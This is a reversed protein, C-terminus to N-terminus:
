VFPLHSSLFGSTPHKPSVPNPPGEQKNLNLLMSGFSSYTMGVASNHRFWTLHKSLICSGLSTMRKGSFVRFIQSISIQCFCLNYLKYTIHILSCFSMSLLSFRQICIIIVPFCTMLMLSMWPAVPSPSFPSFHLPFIYDYKLKLFTFFIM